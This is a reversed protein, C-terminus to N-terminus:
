IRGCAQRCNEFMKRGLETQFLAESAKAAEGELGGEYGNVIIDAEILLQLVHDREHTYDHHRQVAVTVPPIFSPPYGAEMLFKKILYPAEKQQNEQCADGHYHEKCYKIPIDHLIAAAQLIEREEEPLEESEGLLKALAYVKLIHQTRRPHGEEYLLADRLLKAESNM